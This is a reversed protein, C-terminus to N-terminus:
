SAKAIPLAEQLLEDLDVTDLWELFVNTVYPGPKQGFLAALQRLKNAKEPDEIQLAVTWPKSSVQSQPVAPRMPKPLNPVMTHNKGNFFLNLPLRRKPTDGTKSILETTTTSLRNM